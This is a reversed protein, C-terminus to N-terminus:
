LPTLDPENLPTITFSAHLSPCCFLHCSILVSSLNRKKNLNVKSVDPQMTMIQHVDCVDSYNAKAIHQM